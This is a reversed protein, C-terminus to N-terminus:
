AYRRPWYRPSPLMTRLWRVLRKEIVQESAHGSISASTSAATAATRGVEDTDRRCNTPQV